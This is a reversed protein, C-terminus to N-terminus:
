KIKKAVGNEVVVPVSRMDNGYRNLLNWEEESCETLDVRIVRVRRDGIYRSLADECHGCWTATFFIVEERDAQQVNQPLVQCGIFITVLIFIVLRM